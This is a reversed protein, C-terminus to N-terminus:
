GASMRVRVTTGAEASSRIQVLDCVQNALWLGRGGLREPEPLLHGALPQTMLGADSVECVVDQQEDSWLSLTGSGGGHLVSNVALENVALVLDERREQLLGGARAHEYVADRVTGLQACEFRLARAGAPAARLAPRAFFDACLEYGANPTGADQATLLPHSTLADHLTDAELAAADYPCLLRWPRGEAFAVNLLHEHRDCEDLEEPSRGPWVPEGIGRVPSGVPHEDLFNQWAPIIRAPNRGLEHMDLFEVTAAQEGLAGRLQECREPALAALVSEGLSLGEAVFPVTASLFGDSGEYFVARHEFRGSM